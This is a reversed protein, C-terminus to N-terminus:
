IGQLATQMSSAAHQTYWKLNGPALPFPCINHRSDTIDSCVLDWGWRPRPRLSWQSHALAGAGQGFGFGKPGFNKAYCGTFSIAICSVDLPSHYIHTLFFYMYIQPYLDNIWVSSIKQDLYYLYVKFNPPFYNNDLINHWGPPSSQKVRNSQHFFLCIHIFYVDFHSRLQQTETLRLKACSTKCQWLSRFNYQM